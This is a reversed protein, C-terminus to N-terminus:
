RMVAMEFAQDLMNNELYLDIILLRSLYSIENEGQIKALKVLDELKPLDNLSLPMSALADYREKLSM